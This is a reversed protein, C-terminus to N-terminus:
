PAAGSFEEGPFKAPFKRPLKPPLLPSLRLSVAEPNARAWVCM